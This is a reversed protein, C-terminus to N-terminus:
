QYVESTFKDDSEFSSVRTSKTGTATADYKGDLLKRVSTVGHDDCRLFWAIDAVWKRPGGGRCFSSAAMRRLAAAWHECFYVDGSRAALADHHPALNAIHEFPAGLANWATVLEMALASSVQGTQRTDDGDTARPSPSPSPSPLCSKANGDCHPPMAMANGDCHWRKRANERQKASHTEQRRLEKLLRKNYLRGAEDREWCALVLGRAVTWQEKSMRCIRRLLDDDAPLYGQDEGIWASFLLLCYAGVEEVTMAQVKPSSLFDKPYFSFAPSLGSM